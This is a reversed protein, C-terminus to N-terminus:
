SPLSKKWRYGMTATVIFYCTPPEWNYKSKSIRTAFLTDTKPLCESIAHYHTQRFLYYDHQVNKANEHINDNGHYTMEIIQRYVIESPPKALAQTSHYLRKVNRSQFCSYDNNQLCLSTYTTWHRATIFVSLGTRDSFLRNGGKHSASSLDAVKNWLQQLVQLLHAQLSLLSITLHLYDLLIILDFLLYFIGCHGGM